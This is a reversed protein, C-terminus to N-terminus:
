VGESRIGYAKLLEEVGGYGIYDSFQFILVDDKDDPDPLTGFTDDNDLKIIIGTIQHAKVWKWKEVDNPLAEFAKLLDYNTM